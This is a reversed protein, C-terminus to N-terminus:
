PHGHPSQRNWRQCAFGGETVSINGRYNIQGISMSGCVESILDAIEDEADIDEGLQTWVGSIYQYIRVHGSQSGNGNNGWAGIAVISGDASIKLASGSWSEATEGDIDAGIQTWVGSENKFVRVQGADKGTCSRM